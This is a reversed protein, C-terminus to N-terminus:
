KIIMAIALSLACMAITMICYRFVVQDRKLGLAEFHHHIPAAKFVKRKFFKKSFIQIVNSFVTLMLMIGAIPLLYVADILIAVVGLTLLLATSGTDGMYFKAPAINYWLFAMTSGAVVGMFAAIDYFGRIYAIAAFCIFIPVFVSGSLGDFGDIVSSGWLLLLIFMTIPIILWSADIGWLNGLTIQWNFISITDIHIRSYFWAGIIFSLLGVLFLRQRLKLGGAMYNGGGELTSLADDIFGFVAGFFLTGIPIFTQGRNIFNLYRFLDSGPEIKLLFWFFLAIALSNVWILTGGGRPVKMKSEDQSYFKNLTSDSFTGGTMNVKRNEKKWFRMWRLLKILAPGWWLGLLFALVTYTLTKVIEM